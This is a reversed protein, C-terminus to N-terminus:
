TFSLIIANMLYLSTVCTLYVFVVMKLVTFPFNKEFYKDNRNANNKHKPFPEFEIWGTWNNSM